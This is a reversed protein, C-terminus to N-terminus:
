YVALKELQDKVVTMNDRLLQASQNMARIAEGENENLGNVVVEFQQAMQDLRGQAQSNLLFMDNYHTTSFFLEVIYPKLQIIINDIKGSILPALSQLDHILKIINRIERILSSLSNNLSSITLIPISNIKALSKFHQSLLTIQIENISKLLQSGAGLISKYVKSNKDFIAEYLSEIYDGLKKVGNNIHDNVINMKNKLYQSEKMKGKVMHNHSIQINVTGNLITADQREMIQKIDKIQEGFTDNQKRICKINSDVIKLHKMLEEAVGDMLDYVINEFIQKILDGLDVHIKEIGERLLNNNSILHEKIPTHGILKALPSSGELYHNISALLDETEELLTILQPSVTELETHISEMLSLEIAKKINKSLREKRNGFKKNEKEAINYSEHLFDCCDKLALSTENTVMNSLKSLNDLDLQILGSKGSKAISEGTWVNIPIHDDMEVKVEITKPVKKGHKIETDKVSKIKIPIDEYTNDKKNFKRHYGTHSEVIHTLGPSGNVVSVEKNPMNNGIGRQINTLIDFISTYDIINKYFPKGDKNWSSLPLRAPDTTVVDVNPYEQGIRKASAGGQSNGTVGEISKNLFNERKANYKQNFSYNSMIKADNLKTLYNDYFKTSENLMETSTNKDNGLKIDEVWDDAIFSPNDPNEKESNDTGQFAVVQKGTPHDNKDLLEFVKMDVGGNQNNNIDDTEYDIQKFRKGNVEFSKKPNIDQYVWFSAIEAKDRDNVMLRNNNNM